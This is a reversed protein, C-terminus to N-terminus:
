SSYLITPRIFSISSAAFATSIFTIAPVIIEGSDIGLAKVALHLGATASNLGVAYKTGIFKAFEIEFEETKPGLGIWGSKLVQVVADIEKQTISPKFVQIM